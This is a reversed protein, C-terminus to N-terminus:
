SDCHISAKLKLEDDEALCDVKVSLHPLKFNLRESSVWQVVLEARHYCITIKIIHALISNLESPYNNIGYLSAHSLEIM